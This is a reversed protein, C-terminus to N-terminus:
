PRRGHPRALYRRHRRDAHVQGREVAPSDALGSRTVVLDGVFRMLEDLRALDVRVFQAPAVPQVAGAPEPPVTEAGTTAVSEWRLGLASLPAFASEDARSNVVFHFAINGAEGLVPAAEVIEGIAQLAERVSNVSVGREALAPSPLYHFRWTSLASPTEIARGVNSVSPASEAGAAIEELKRTADVLASYAAASFVANSEQLRRLFSEMEHALTEAEELAVMGSLGKLSHFAHFLDNLVRRDPPAHDILAELEVLNRRVTTLHEACEAVYDAMFGLPLSPDNSDHANM